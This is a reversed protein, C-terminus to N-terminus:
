KSIGNFILDLSQRTASGYSKIFKDRFNCAISKRYDVNMSLIEEILKEETDMDVCNLEKRIDFYLGRKTQYEDYDYAFCLM